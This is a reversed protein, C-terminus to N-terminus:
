RRGRDDDSYNPRKLRLSNSVVSVSSLAMAAAAITPGGIRLLLGSAALPIALVNYGLAWFLNERITRLTRRSLEIADAVARPDSRMLTISAAEAAVDTGSGMAFGVDARALAPADNVGDGVMGVLRGGARLADLHMMKEEPLTNARVREVAIGVARAIAEAVPRRDGTVLHVAVGLRDLSAVAERSEPKVPDSIGFMGVVRGAVAVLVPTHGENVLRDLAARVRDDLAEAAVIRESGVAVDRDDIRGRVGIGPEARVERAVLPTPEAAHRVMARALPHTSERELAAALALVRADDLSEDLRVFSTVAPRGTTLTGTKDFVVAHLSGARELSAADKVLIGQEAARGTAVMIATPTALGLACPCAIVLVTVGRLLAANFPTGAIAIWGIVTLLALTVVIPVFVASARDALRQAPAKSSQAEDVLRVIAALQTEAGVRTVEFTFPRDGNLTGGTVPEGPRRTALASEGTLMSEDLEAVGDRLVGDTPVREHPRVRVSMGRTLSEIPVEREAGSADLVRAVKPQLSVLARISASARRKARGELWKGLVVLAVIMAATEFYLHGHPGGHEAHQVLPALSSSWAAFSGLAVLTDMNTALHRANRIAGVFFPSGAGFVVATALAFQIWANGPIRALAPVMALLMVIAGLGIALVLRTTGFREPPASSLDPASAVAGAEPARPVLAHYGAREVAARLADRMPDDTRSAEVTVRETALNVRADHVGTVKKLAREVRNVCAACTMGEVAFSLSELSGPEIGPSGHADASM